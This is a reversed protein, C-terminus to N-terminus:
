FAFLNERFTDYEYSTRTLGMRQLAPVLGETIEGIYRRHLTEGHNSILYGDGGVEEMVEGMREAVQDPTGVAPFSDIEWKSAAEKLTKGQGNRLFDALTSKHGNTDLEPVPGDLDYISFDNETVASLHALTSEANWDSTAALREAAARAEAETDGLVPSLLFM